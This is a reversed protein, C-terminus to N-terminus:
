NNFSTFRQHPWQERDYCMGWYMLEYDSSLNFAHQMQQKTKEDAKDALEDVLRILNASGRQFVPDAYLDIFAQYIDTTSHFSENMRKFCEAYSWYCPLLSAVGAEPSVFTAQYYMHNIYATATPALPAAKVAEDTVHVADAVKKRNELESDEPKLIDILPAAMKENPMQKALTQHLDVFANLYQNDQLIYFQFKDIPLSGDALERLFPHEYCREWVPEIAQHIQGSFKM